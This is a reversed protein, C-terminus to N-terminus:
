GSSCRSAGAAAHGLGAVPRLRAPMAGPGPVDPQPHLPLSRRRRLRDADGVAGAAHRARLFLRAAWLALGVGLASRCCRGALDVAPAAAHRRAALPAAGAHWAPWCAWVPPVLIRSLKVEADSRGSLTDAAAPAAAAPRRRPPMRLPRRRRRRVPQPQRRRARDPHAGACRLDRAGAPAPREGEAGLVLALRGGLLAAALDLGSGRRRPRRLPLRGGALARLARALNVVRILPVAELAGSAAKALAGTEEPAHRDQVVVAAAGFAQASRLVAGVNRPDTVQDLVVLLADADGRRREPLMRWTSRRCRGPAARRLGPAGRGAPLLAALAERPRPTRSRRARAAAGSRRPRALEAATERCRWCGTAAAAAPQGGGGARRAPRLALLRRPAGSAPPAAPAGPSGAGGAPRQRRPRAGTGAAAGAPDGGLDLAQTPTM